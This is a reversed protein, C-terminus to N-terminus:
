ERHRDHEGREDAGGHGRGPSPVRARGTCRARAPPGAGRALEGDAARVRGNAKSMPEFNACRKPTATDFLERSNTIVLHEAARLARRAEEAQGGGRAGHDDMGTHSAM